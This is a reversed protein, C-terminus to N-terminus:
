KRGGFGWEERSSLGERIIKKPKFRKIKTLGAFRQTDFAPAPLIEEWAQL